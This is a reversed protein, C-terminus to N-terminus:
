QIKDPQNQFLRVPGYLGSDPDGRYDNPETQYHNSLTNYVTVTITNEGPKLHGSTSFTWPPAVRVGLDQGNLRVEATAIVKGLDISMARSAEDKSVSFTKTYSVGGSYNNLIGMTSWDGLPMTGKGNTEIGIPEPLASGGQLGPPPTLRLAITPAHTSPNVAEFRGEGATTM